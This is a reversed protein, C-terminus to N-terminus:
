GLDIIDSFSEEMDYSVGKQSRLGYVFNKLVSWYEQLLNAMQKEPLDTYTKELIELFHEKAPVTQGVYENLVKGRKSGLCDSTKLRGYMGQSVVLRTDSLEGWLSEFEKIASSIGRFLPVVSSAKQGTNEQLHIVKDGFQAYAIVKDPVGRAEGCSIIVGCSYEQTSKVECYARLTLKENIEWRNLKYGEFIVEMEELADEVMKQMSSRGAARTTSYCGIIMKMRKQISVTKFCLGQVENLKEGMILAVALLYQNCENRKRLISSCDLIGGIQPMADESILYYEQDRRFIIGSDAFAKATSEQLKLKKEHFFPQGNKVNLSEGPIVEWFKIITQGNSVFPEMDGRYVLISWDAFDDTLTEIKGSIAQTLAELGEGFRKGKMMEQVGSCQYLKWSINGKQKTIDIHLSDGDHLMLEDEISDNICQLLDKLDDIEHGSQSLFSSRGEDFIKM